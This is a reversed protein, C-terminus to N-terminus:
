SSRKWLQNRRLLAFSSTVLILVTPDPNSRPPNGTSPTRPPSSAKPLVLSPLTLTPTPSLSHLSFSVFAPVTSMSSPLLVPCKRIKERSDEILVLVEEGDARYRAAWFPLYLPVCDFRELELDGVRTREDLDVMHIRHTTSSSSSTLELSPANMRLLDLLPLPSLDFPIPEVPFTDHVLDTSPNFLKLTPPLESLLPTCTVHYLIPSSTGPFFFRETEMSVVKLEVQGGEKEREVGIEMKASVAWGPLYIADLRTLELEKVADKKGTRSVWADRVRQWNGSPAFYAQNFQFERAAEVRSHLFPLVHIQSLSPLFSTPRNRPLPPPPFSIRPPSSTLSTNSFSRYTSTQSRSPPRFAHRPPSLPLSSSSIAPLSASSPSTSLPRFLSSSKSLIRGRISPSALLMGTQDFLGKKSAPPKLFAFAFLFSPDLEDIESRTSRGERGVEM